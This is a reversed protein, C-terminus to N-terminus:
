SGFLESLRERREGFIWRFLFPFALVLLGLLVDLYFEKLIRTTAVEGAFMAYDIWFRGSVVIALIMWLSIELIRLRRM